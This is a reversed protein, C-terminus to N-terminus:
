KTTFASFYPLTNVSRNTSEGISFEKLCAGIIPLYYFSIM